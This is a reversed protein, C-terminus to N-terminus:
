TYRDTVHEPGYEEWAKGIAPNRDFFRRRMESDINNFPCAFNMCHSCYLVKLARKWVAILLVYMGLLVYSKQLLAPIMPVSLMVIFGLYFVVRELSSMPNPRYKWLKPSGYNAWCKLSKLTAEAYHPCHSCMVRIEILGFYSVICLIWAILLYPDFQYVLFGGLLFVPIAMSLFILLQRINFHCVLEEPVGCGDC